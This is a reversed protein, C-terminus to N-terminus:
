RWPWPMPLAIGFAWHVVNTQRAVLQSCVEPSLLESMPIARGVWGAAANPAFCAGPRMMIQPRKFVNEFGYDPGLKGYKTFADWSGKTPDDASPQFTSLVVCGTPAAVADLDDLAELDSGLRFQGKGVSRDGGFGWGALEAFLRMLLDKSEQRVRLYVSLYSLPRGRDDVGLVRETTPYLGGDIAATDSSRDITNRLQLYEHVGSNPILDDIRPRDGHQLRVLAAREVWLARKDPKREPAAWTALRATAPIPLWDGPFADSTVFPPSGNLGPGIIEQELVGEGETRACAWCLLGALTDSQWPTLWPSEPIVRIRYLQM